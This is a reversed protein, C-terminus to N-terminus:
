NKNRKYLNGALESIRAVGLPKMGKNGTSTIQM